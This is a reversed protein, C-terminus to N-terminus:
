MGSLSNIQMIEISAEPINLHPNGEFIKSAEEHSEAEVISYLMINNKIDTVGEKTIRKTKGAGATEKVADKHGALWANWDTRMKEEEVKRLEPDTKMWAELGAVPMLYLVLFKKM